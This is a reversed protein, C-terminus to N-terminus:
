QLMAKSCMGSYTCCYVAKFCWCFDNQDCHQENIRFAPNFLIKPALSPISCWLLVMVHFTPYGKVCTQTYKCEWWWSQWGIKKSSWSNVWCWLIHVWNHVDYFSLTKAAKKKKKSPCMLPSIFSRIIVPHLCEHIVFNGFARTCCVHVCVCEYHELQLAGCACPSALLNLKAATGTIDSYDRILVRIVDSCQHSHMLAQLWLAHKRWHLIYIRTHTDSLSARATLALSARVASWTIWTLRNKLVFVPFVRTVNAVKIM